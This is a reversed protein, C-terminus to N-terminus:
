FTLVGSSLQVHERSAHASLDLETRELIHHTKEKSFQMAEIVLCCHEVDCTEVATWAPIAGRCRVGHLFLRAPRFICCSLAKVKQRPMMHCHKRILARTLMRSM